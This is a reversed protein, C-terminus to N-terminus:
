HPSDRISSLLPSAPMESGQRSFGNVASATGDAGAVGNLAGGRAVASRRESANGGVGAAALAAGTSLATSGAEDDDQWSAEPHMRPVANSWDVDAARAKFFSRKPRASADSVGNARTGNIGYEDGLGNVSASGGAHPSSNVDATALGYKWPASGRPGGAIGVDGGKRRRSRGDRGNAGMGDWPADEDDSLEDHQREIHHDRMRQTIREDLDSDEDDSLGLSGINLSQAPTDQLQVSPAFPLTRLHDAISSMINALYDRSNKNEMSTPPVELKYEPGFYQIYDNFPLNDDLEKGALRSTEYTWTKAVNRITYGGGGVVVLPVDFRKMFDVCNAHGRMSLNFCGLKDGALSDAGCQLVVAGPRYWDMIQQLVPEFIGAFSTDDIGDHLPVNVAYGKGKKIGVDRVAGTNPFFDGYKHFSVTMVRDTTYFAEEVGDGHHIDIDIYLVRLHARLLELIGVVIDNVYCFGSAEQKKAHHLGGAWNIAIDAQGSNVREAAAISGGASITCFEWLGEFAPCDEGVLFRTGDGTLEMMTEPTVRNLFDVYEDSHFRAMQERTARQPRLVDMHKDLGYNAVLNHTMRMRHPKMPHGYGYSYNGVDADYYYAVVKNPALTPGSPGAGDM